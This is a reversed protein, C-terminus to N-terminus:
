RQIWFRYMGTFTHPNDAEFRAWYRLNTCSPDDGFRARYQNLVRLDLEFGIFRLGSDTLFSEIQDLTLHQDQVHFALDRCDSMAYFARINSLSRLEVSKEQMVVDQRFRRIDDPTDQYGHAAIFERAEVVPRRAIRSYLGLCMFGGPRLRSLLVRWGAFPDALHHLVGVSSIVDFTRAIEGLELIDAHAYEINTLGLELTKRKAYSISSLSLDIALVRAGLFRQAVFIADSGTGCGAVLVEAASDDALPSFQAFPMAYHLEANLRMPQERLQMKIWRPYPSQEYQDRVAASVASTIPTLRAIGARLAQEQLPERIQQRLIEEVPGPKGAALLRGPDHLLHLPFYAAVALLLLPPVAAKADLLALLAQRCDAATAQEADTCAFVYENIFCQQALAAYFGLGASDVAVPTHKKSAIELLAHRACTLFREFPLSKVPGSALLALLLPDAALAARGGSGFLVAPAPRAPWSENAQRVCSAIREDLMIVSLASQSLDHPMTWAETVATTIATRVRSDHATFRTRAACNAFAVKTTWNPARELARLLLPVAEAFKNRYQLLMALEYLIDASEPALSAARRLSAEAGDLDGLSSLTGGLIRHATPHDPRLEVANRLSVAAEHPRGQSMALVGLNLHADAYAPNVTLAQRYGDMAESTRGLSALTNAMGVIAEASRPKIRIAAQYGSLAQALEGVRYNLNAINLHIAADEPDCALALEYARRADDYLARALLINGRNVHAPACQPDRRVAADYRSMAEAIRGQQMLANGENVMSRAWRRSAASPDTDAPAAAPPTSTSELDAMQTM